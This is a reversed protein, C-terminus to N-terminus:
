PTVPWEAILIRRVAEGCLAGIYERQAPTVGDGILYIRVSECAADAIHSIRSERLFSARDSDANRAIENVLAQLDDM